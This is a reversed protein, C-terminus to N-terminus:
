SRLVQLIRALQAALQNAARTLQARQTPSLSSFGSPTGGPFGSVPPHAPNNTLKSSTAAAQGALAAAGAVGGILAVAVPLVRGVTDTSSPTLAGTKGLQATRLAAAAPTGPQTLQGTAPDMTPLLGSIVFM